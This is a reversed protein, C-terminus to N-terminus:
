NKMIINIIEVNCLIFFERQIKVFLTVKKFISVKSFPFAFLISCGCYQNHNRIHLIYISIADFYKATRFPFNKWNM